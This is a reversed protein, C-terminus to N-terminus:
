TAALLDVLSGGEHIRRIAEAFLSATSLVTLKRDRIQSDLRIPQVTDTIVAGDIDDGALVESAKGVFLGHTAVAYVRRAGQDRCAHAAAAITGGTSILDDFILVTSQEVEGVLRGASMRGLAREKEMFGSNVTRGIRGELNSRFREARKTGGFDPSVVTIRPQDSLERAFHRAFVSMATLHDTNIRFANQFAALNHVDLTVVRNAGVAEILEAVYRTTVPDRPQSKQDKRAYALYPIVATVTAASADRLAGVFYLLRILKDNVSATPDSYLSQIVFVDRNRVSVEPRSKHEGDDFEREEHPSLSLSLETTVQEAFERSSNLAFIMPPQTM